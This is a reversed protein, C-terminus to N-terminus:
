SLKKCLYDNVSETVKQTSVLRLNSKEFLRFLEQENFHIELMKVGYAEKTFFTTPTNTLIPTRHFVVYKKAVRAAEAIAREYDVIHLLCCGSIVIDFSSDPYDLATADSLKFQHQPYKQKAMKIFAPSYDCGEYQCPIKERTLIEASYGSSCGIELIKPRRLHTKRVMTAIVRLHKFKRYNPLQAEVLRWQKEPIKDSKWANAYFIKRIIRLLKEM